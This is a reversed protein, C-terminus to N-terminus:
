QFTFNVNVPTGSLNVQTKFVQGGAGLTGFGAQVDSFAQDAWSFVPNWQYYDYIYGFVLLSTVGFQSPGSPSLTAQLELNYGVRGFTYKLDTTNAFTLDCETGAPQGPPPGPLCPFLPPIDVQTSPTPDFQSPSSYCKATLGRSCAGYVVWAPFTYGTAGPNANFYNVLTSVNAPTDNATLTDTLLTQFDPDLLIKQALVTGAQFNHVFRPCVPRERSVIRGNGCKRNIM